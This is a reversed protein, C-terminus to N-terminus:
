KRRWLTGEKSDELIIGKELLQDRIQDAQSFKKELRYRNRKTILKEIEEQSIETLKKQSFSLGFIGTIQNFLFSSEALFKTKAKGSGSLEKNIFGVLEFLVALAKPMNFDDDMAEIFRNKFFKLKGRLEVSLKAKSTDKKLTIELRDKLIKIHQYAKEAQEMKDWSFDISSSYHAQLFFLKLCDPSYRKFLDALIVFNGLSKSMKQGEITLLGHHLWYNALKKGSISMAQAAENEHHPFVLDRGGGHIDLTKCNLYKQSMVSCEIHWGPRGRGWPSMWGPQDPESIKWLAFDLPDRKSEDSKIRASELMQDIKQGSLSGYSKLKRVEFYVGTGAVYAYGKDIVKTIYEIMDKINETAKPEFDPPKLEFKDLDKRYSDIYKDSLERWDLDLEKAREIIKDDIDTINRVFEVRYGRYELYRRMVDFIYLSRGHGIHCDDYTTVGCTYFRVINKNIEKFEQKQKGLTNYVKLM